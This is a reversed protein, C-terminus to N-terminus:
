LCNGMDRSVARADGHQSFDHILASASHSCSTVDLSFTLMYKSMEGACFM